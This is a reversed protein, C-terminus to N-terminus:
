GNIDFFNASHVAELPSQGFQAKGGPRVVVEEDSIVAEAELSEAEVPVLANTPAKEPIEDGREEGRVELSTDAPRKAAAKM